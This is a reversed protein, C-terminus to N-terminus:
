AIGNSSLKSSKLVERRSFPPAGERDHLPNSRIANAIALFVRVTKSAGERGLGKPNNTVIILFYVTSDDSARVRSIDTFRDSLCHALNMARFVMPLNGAGLERSV